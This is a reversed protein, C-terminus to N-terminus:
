NLTTRYKHDSECLLPDTIVYHTDPQDVSDVNKFNFFTDDPLSSEFNDSVKKYWDKLEQSKEIPFVFAVPNGMWCDPRNQIVEKVSLFKKGEKVYKSNLNFKWFCGPCLHLISWDDPLREILEFLKAHFENTFYTDDQAIIVFSKQDIKDDSLCLDFLKKYRQHIVRFHFPSVKDELDIFLDLNQKDCIKKVKKVRRQNEEYNKVSYIM